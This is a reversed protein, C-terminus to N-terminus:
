RCRIYACLGSDCNVADQLAVTYAADASCYGARVIKRFSGDCRDVTFGAFNLKDLCIDSQTLYM